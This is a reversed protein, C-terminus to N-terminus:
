GNLQLAKNVLAEKEHGKATEIKKNIQAIEGDLAHARKLMRDITVRKSIRSALAMKQAHNRKLLPKRGISTKM